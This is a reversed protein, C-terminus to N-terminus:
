DVYEVPEVQQGRVAVFFAGSPLTDLAFGFVLEILGDEHLCVGQHELRSWLGLDNAFAPVDGFDRRVYGDWLEWLCRQLAPRLGPYDRGLQEYRQRDVAQPPGDQRYVSVAFPNPAHPWTAQGAWRDGLRVLKGFVPDRVSGLAPWM